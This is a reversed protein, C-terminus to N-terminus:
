RPGGTAAVLVKREGARLHKSVAAKSIGVLAAIRGLSVKAPSDYYGLRVALQLLDRQRPTLAALPQWAGPSATRMATVRHPAELDKLLRRLKPLAVESALLVVRVDGTSTLSLELPVVGVWDRGVKERLVKPFDWDIWALYEGRAADTSLIEFRRVRYRKAIARAERGVTAADKFPGHRRVRVILAAAQSRVSFSQVVEVSRNHRFFRAGLIGLDDLLALPVTLELRKM